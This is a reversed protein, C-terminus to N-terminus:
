VRCGASHMFEGPLGSVLEHLLAWGAWSALYCVYRWAVCVKDHEPVPCNDEKLAVCALTSRILQAPGHNRWLMIRSSWPLGVLPCPLVGGGSCSCLLVAM